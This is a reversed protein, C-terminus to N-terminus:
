QNINASAWQDLDVGIGTGGPLECKTPLLPMTTVRLVVSCTAWRFSRGTTHHFKPKVENM